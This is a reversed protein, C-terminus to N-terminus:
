STGSALIGHAKPPTVDVDTVIAIVITLSPPALATHRQIVRISAAMALCCIRSGIANKLLVLAAV